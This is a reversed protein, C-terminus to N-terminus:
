AAPATDGGAKPNGSSIRGKLKDGTKPAEEKSTAKLSPFHEKAFATIEENLTSKLSEIEQSKPEVLVTRDKLAKYESAARLSRTEIQQKAIKELDAVNGVGRKELLKDISDKEREEYKKVIEEWNEPREKIGGRVEKSM